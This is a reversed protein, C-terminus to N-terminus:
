TCHPQGWRNRCRLGAVKIGEAGGSTGNVVINESKM